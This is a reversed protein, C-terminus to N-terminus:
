AGAFSALAAPGCGRRGGLDEEIRLTENWKAM